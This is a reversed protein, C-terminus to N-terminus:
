VEGYHDVVGPVQVLLSWGVFFLGLVPAVLVCFSSEVCSGEVVALLFVVTALLALVEVNM